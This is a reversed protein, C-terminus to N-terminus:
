EELSKRPIYNGQSDKEYIKDSFKQLQSALNPVENRLFVEFADLVESVRNSLNEDTDKELIFTPGINMLEGEPGSSVDTTVKISQLVDTRYDNQSNYDESTFLISFDVSYDDPEPIITSFDRNWNNFPYVIRSYLIPFSQPFHRENKLFHLGVSSISKLQNLIDDYLTDVRSVIFPLYKELFM